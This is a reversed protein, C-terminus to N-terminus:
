GSARRAWFPRDAWRREARYAQALDALCAAHNQALRVAFAEVADEKGDLALHLAEAGAKGSQLSALIGQGSLPDHSAAADGVALWGEGHLRELRSVHAAAAVPAHAVAGGAVLPAVHATRAAEALLRGPALMGEAAPLDADTLFALVRRGHPVAATYWWGDPASEVLTAHDLDPGPMALLVAHALLRDRSARPVGLHRALWARRGTADVLWRPRLRRAGVEVDWRGEPGPDTRAARGVPAGELLLAGAERAADRLMADFAPRDLHWGHGHPDRLFDALHISSSGWASRNGRSIRHEAQLFREWVGLRQLFPKAVPPLGEGVRFAPPAADKEAVAVRRGAQALALAAASGAPGGGLVLVDLPEDM